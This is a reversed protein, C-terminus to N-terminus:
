ECGEAMRNQCLSSLRVLLVRVLGLRERRSCRRLTSRCLKWSMIPYHTCTVALLSNEPNSTSKWTGPVMSQCDNRSRVLFHGQLGGIDRSYVDKWPNVKIIQGCQQLPSM